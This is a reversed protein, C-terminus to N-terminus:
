EPTKVQLVSEGEEGVSVMSPRRHVYSIILTASVWLNHLGTEGGMPLHGRAYSVSHLLPEEWCMVYNRYRTM